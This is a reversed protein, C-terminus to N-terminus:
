FPLDDIPEEDVSPQGSTPNANTGTQEAGKSGLLQVLGVRLKISTGQVGEKTTYSHVSPTGEVYVQTGKKLYPAVAASENWYGCEIWITQEKQNGQQDKVKQTHAVSFNIVNKGNVSNVIADRGLHGIATLKIM